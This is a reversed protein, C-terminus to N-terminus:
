GREITSHLPGLAKSGDLFTKKIDAGAQLDQQLTNAIPTQILNTKEQLGCCETQQGKQNRNQM